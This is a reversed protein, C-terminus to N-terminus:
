LPQVGAQHPKGSQRLLVKVSQQRAYQGILSVCLRSRGHRARNVESVAVALMGSIVGFAWARSTMDTFGKVTMDLDDTIDAIL